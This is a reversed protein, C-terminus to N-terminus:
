QGDISLVDPDVNVTGDSHITVECDSYQFTIHGIRLDKKFLSNLADPDIVSALPPELDMPDINKAKAVATVVAWGIDNQTSTDM